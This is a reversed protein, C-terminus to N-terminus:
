WSGESLLALKIEKSLHVYVGMCVYRHSYGETFMSLVSAYDYM